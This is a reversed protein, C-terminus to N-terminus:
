EELLDVTATQGDLRINLGISNDAWVIDGSFRIRQGKNLSLGVDAPVNNIVVEPVFTNRGADIYISYTGSIEGVDVEEVTGEWDVARKGKLPKAYQEWQADTMANYNEAIETFSPAPVATARMQAVQVEPSPTFKVLLYIALCVLVLSFLSALALRRAKSPQTTSQM